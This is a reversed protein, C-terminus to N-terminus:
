TSHEEEKAISYGDKFGTEYANKIDQQTIIDKNWKKITKLRVEEHVRNITERENDPLNFVSIGRYWHYYQCYDCHIYARIEEFVSSYASECIVERGCLPCPKIYENNSM